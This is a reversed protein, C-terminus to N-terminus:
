NDIMRLRSYLEGSPTNTTEQSILVLYLANSTIDAITGVSGLGYITHMNLKKYIKFPIAENDNGYSPNFLQDSLIVFRKKYDLNRPCYLNTVASNNALLNGLTPAVGNPSKDIFLICRVPGVKSTGNAFIVGAIQISKYRVSDGDRSESTDGTALGNLLFFSTSASSNIAFAGTHDKDNFKFEVNVLEKLFRVSKQLSPVQKVLAKSMANTIPYDRAFNQRRQRRVRRVPKSSYFAKVATAM